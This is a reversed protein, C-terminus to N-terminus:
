LKEKSCYAARVDEGSWHLTAVHGSLPSKFHNVHMERPQNNIPLPHSWYLAVSRTPYTGCTRIQLCMSSTTQIEVMLSPKFLAGQKHQLSQRKTTSYLSPFSRVRTAGWSNRERTPPNKMERTRRRWSEEQSTKGLDGKPNGPHTNSPRQRGNSDEKINWGKGEKRQRYSSM